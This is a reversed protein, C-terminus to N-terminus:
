PHDHLSSWFLNSFKSSSTPKIPSMSSEAITGTGFVSITCTLFISINVGITSSGSIM